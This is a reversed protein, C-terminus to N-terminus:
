SRWTNVVSKHYGSPVFVFVRAAMRLITRALPVRTLALNKTPSCPKWSTSTFPYPGSPRGLRSWCVSIIRLGLRWSRTSREASQAYTLGLRHRREHTSSQKQCHCQWQTQVEKRLPIPLPPAHPCRVRRNDEKCPLRGSWATGHGMPAAPLCGAAKLRLFLHCSSATPLLLQEPPPPPVQVWM